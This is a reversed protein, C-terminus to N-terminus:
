EELLAQLTSRVLPIDFKVHVSFDSELLHFSQVGIVTGHIMEMKAGIVPIAAKIGRGLLLRSNEKKSIRVIFSLGGLSIDSLDARFGSISKGTKDLIHVQIKRELRYREYIRRDLGKKNLLLHIDSTRNYIDRLKSELGPFKEEQLLLQERTLVMIRTPKVATLTMTWVSANFFCEGAIEGSNLNKLFFEKEGGMYSARISGQNIFFLEDNKDGQSVLIQEPHYEREEMVHYIANFEETSLDELPKSWIQLHNKNIAGCKEEEIIDGSQIIEMLAMPDIEYMRNRLREANAFDKKKACSVILEFLRKKAKDKEGAAALHFIQEEESAVPNKSTSGEPVEAPKRGVTPSAEQRRAERTEILTLINKAAAQVRDSFRASDTVKKQPIISELVPVLKDLIQWYEKEALLNATKTLCDASNQRLRSDHSQVGQTVQEVLNCAIQSKKNDLLRIITGPLATSIDTHHLVEQEGSLLRKLAEQFKVIQQKRM